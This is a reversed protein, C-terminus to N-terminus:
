NTSIQALKNRLERGHIQPFIICVTCLDSRFKPRAEAGQAYTQRSDPENKQVRHM